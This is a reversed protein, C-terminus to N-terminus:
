RTRRNVLQDAEKMKKEYVEDDIKATRLLYDGYDEATAMNDASIGERNIVKNVTIWLIKLDNKLSIHEMYKLDLQLKEEWSIGNRGNIQALGTIGPKVFHRRRQEKNMFVMDKVLQPRPGVLSMDGKLVNFLEPLEDLSTDRLYKGFKNLRLEDPLLRGNKDRKNTMSRFKKMEFIEEKHGPRKQQFIVPRGLNVRVLISILLFVPSLLIIALASVGIDFFRKGINLYIKRDLAKNIM